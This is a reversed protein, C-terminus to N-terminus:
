IFKEKRDVLLTQEPLEVEIEPRFYGSPQRGPAMTLAEKGLALEDRRYTAKEYAVSLALANFPCSEVCLGCFICHGSNIEFREMKLSDGEGRSTALKIEGQPCAKACTGCATCRDSYWVLEYGRFRRSVDLREEPYEVTIPRRILHQLTLWMGKGIGLGYREFKM